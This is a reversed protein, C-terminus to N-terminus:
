TIKCNDLVGPGAGRYRALIPALTEKLPDLWSEFRRWQDVGERFIPRRVQESSATRVSRETEHFRLCAADFPLDLYELLRRIEKESDEIMAEHFVRHIKGPLVDDFHEMLTVYDAYYRGLDELSYSFVQGEAFHQKFNSFCCGLPHRRADIIKANPLILHILGAHLWNNPMKDIFFPRTTKRQPRTTELYSAGLGRLANGDFNALLAPYRSRDDGALRQVLRLIDPLEQTGEIMPHSALIQEILTSGSRPLGVVFIPDTEPAGQGERAAFFEQTFVERARAVAASTEDAKYSLEARRLRNGDAYHRFATEYQGDDEYAKGLAFHFHVLEKGSAAALANEMAKRDAESFQMTKLNALSWWAEGLGPMADIARRYAVICNAQQGVTKLTHGYSLWIRAQDPRRALVQEFQAIADDFDGLRALAAAKLNRYAANEPEAALLRDLMEIAEVFHSQRYLVTALNFRAPIFGPALEVARELLSRADANRGLRGALEALMRIAAVDTPKEKLHDRLLKEAVPLDNDCLAAAARQLRPDHVSAKIQRAFAADAGPGDGSLVLADGLLRWADPSNPSRKAARRFTAIAEDRRKLIALARGRLLLADPQDSIARLIERAQEEALAADRGLLDRARGLAVALTGTPAQEAAM